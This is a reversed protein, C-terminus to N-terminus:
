VFINPMDYFIMICDYFGIRPCADSFDYSSVGVFCGFLLIIVLATPDLIMCAFVYRDIAADRCWIEFILCLGLALWDAHSM